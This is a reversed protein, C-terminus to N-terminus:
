KSFEKRIDDYLGTSELHREVTVDSSSMLVPADSRSPREFEYVYAILHFDATTVVTKWPSDGLWRPGANLEKVQETTMPTEKEILPQKCVVLALLRYRGPDANILAKLMSTLTLQRYRPLDFGWRQDLVPKGNPQIHEIHTVIAFGPGHR